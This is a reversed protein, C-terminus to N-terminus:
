AAQQGHESRFVCIHGHTGEQDCDMRGRKGPMECAPPAGLAPAVMPQSALQSPPARRNHAPTAFDQTSCHLREPFEARCNCACSCSCFSLVYGLEQSAAFISTQSCYQQQSNFQLARCAATGQTLDLRGQAPTNDLECGEFMASLGTHGGQAARDGQFLSM